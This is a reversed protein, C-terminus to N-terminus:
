KSSKPASLRDLFISISLIYLPIVPFSYRTVICFFAHLQVFVIIFLFLFFCHQAKIANHHEVTFLLKKNQWAYAFVYFFSVITLIGIFLRILNKFITYDFFLRHLWGPYRVYGIRTSEWFVMRGSEVLHFFSYQFPNELIKEVALEILKSQRQVEPLDIEIWKKVGLTTIIDNHWPACEEEGFLAYCVGDGPVMALAALVMRPNVKVQRREATGYLMWAGRTTFTYYGNYKLNMSRYFHCFLSTSLAVILIYALSNIALKKDKLIIARVILIVYAFLIFPLVYEFIAKTCIMLIFLIGTCLGIFLIKITSDGRIISRWSKILTYFIGLILPFATIESFLSFTANVMSPSIGIYLITLATIKEKINLSKLLRLTLLQTLFLFTIQFLKQIQLYSISYADAIRMSLSVIFPYLPERSPGEELYRIWGDHYLLRGLSDFVTADTSLIPTSTLFLYLWYLTTLSFASFIEINNRFLKLPMM